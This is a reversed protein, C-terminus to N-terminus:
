LSFLLAALAAVILLGFQLAINGAVSEEAAQLDLAGVPCIEGGSREGVVDDTANFVLEVWQIDFSANQGIAMSGSWTSNASWMDLYLRSPPDAVPVHLDTTNTQEDNVFFVSRGPVWDLRHVLWDSYTLDDPITNNVTAGPIPIWDPEGSSSPQNSYQVFTDPARTFLEIDSEQTDNQYTFIGAVAGPAGHIRGLVRMSAATVNFEDFTIEGSEQDEEDIRATSLRM